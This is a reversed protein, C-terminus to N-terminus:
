NKQNQGNNVDYYPSWPTTMPNHPPIMPTTTMQPPMMQQQYASYQQYPLLPQHHTQPRSWCYGMTHGFKNCNHCYRQSSRANNRNQNNQWPPRRNGNGNNNNNRNNNRNNQYNNRRQNQNNQQQNQNPRNKQNQHQTQQTNQRTIQQNLQNISPQLTQAIDKLESSIKSTEQKLNDQAVSLAQLGSLLQKPSISSSVENFANDDDDPYLRDVIMRSAAKACLDQITTEEPQTMLFRRIKIPMGNIFSERVRRAREQARDEALVAPRGGAANRAAINPYAELALRQLDTLLFDQASEESPKLKRAQFVLKQLQIRQDNQYRERLAAIALDYDQRTADPLQDFYTLAGGKLHLHLYQPRDADAIGAIRICSELQRIFENLNEKETGKFPQLNVFPQIAAM